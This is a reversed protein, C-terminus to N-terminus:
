LTLPSAHNVVINMLMFGLMHNRIYYVRRILSGILHLIHKKTNCKSIWIRTIEVKSEDRQDIAKTFKKTGDHEAIILNDADTLTLEM